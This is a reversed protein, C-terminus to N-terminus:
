GPCDSNEAILTQMKEIWCDCSADVVIVHPIEDDELPTQKKLQDCLVDLGAESADGGLAMRRAVRTRLESEPLQFDLIIFVCDRHRALDYFPQRQSRCLFTADVIVTYGSDVLLTALSLLRNYTAASFTATYINQGPLSGSKEDAGLGALRKREVDSRLWVASFCCVVRSSVTSKGSGSVGHTLVLTPRVTQTYSQALVLYTSFEKLVNEKEGSEDLQGARIAAVKARVMARYVQYFRLLALGQFDGTIELYSNLTRAGLEPYGKEDLDMLLFALESMTDIWRLDPNFEIGDFIVPENDILTINGLHLDGHCERVFGERRRKAFLETHKQYQQRTWRELRDIRRLCDQDEILKRIHSFNDWMPQGLRERTGFGSSVDAAAAKGHFLAIRRAITDVVGETLRDTCSSLLGAQDFRHMRVCYDVVEGSGGLVPREVSGTIAVVDIYIGPALRRNLRVEEGCYFRRKELSSFDLFGLSLPKKIKYARDGALIVSSIHTEIVKVSGAGQQTLDRSLREILRGHGAMEETM